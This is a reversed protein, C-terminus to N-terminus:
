WGAAPAFTVSMVVINSACTRARSPSFAGAAGSDAATLELANTRIFDGGRLWVTLGRRPLKGDHKLARVADRARELTAFPKSKAGDNADSGTPAVYFDARAVLALSLGLLCVLTSKSSRNMSTSMRLGSASHRVFFPNQTSNMRMLKHSRPRVGLANTATAAPEALSGVVRRNFRGGGRLTVGVSDVFDLCPWEVRGTRKLLGSRRGIPKVTNFHVGRGLGFFQSM